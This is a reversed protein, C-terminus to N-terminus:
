HQRPWMWLAPDMEPGGLVLFICVYQFSDLTPGSLHYLPQFVLVPQSIQAQEAQLLLLGLPDWECRHIASPLTGFPHPWARELPAWLWSLLCHVCVSTEESGWCVSKCHVPAPINVCGGRLSHLRKSSRWFSGPHPGPHGATYPGAQAPIPGSPGLPGQGCWGKQSETIRDSLRLLLHQATSALM